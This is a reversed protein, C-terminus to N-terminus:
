QKIVLKKVDRGSYIVRLISVARRVKDVQYFVVYHDVPMKRINQSSWPEWGVKAYREPIADLTEAEQIIRQIQRNATQPEKLQTKIYRYIEEMDRNARNTFRVEFEANM